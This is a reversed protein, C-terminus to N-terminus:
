VAIPAKIHTDPSYNQFTFDDFEFEDHALALSGSDSCFGKQPDVIIISYDRM